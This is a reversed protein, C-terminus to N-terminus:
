YFLAHRVGSLLLLALIFCAVGLWGLHLRSAGIPVSTYFTSVLCFLVALVMLLLFGWALMVGGIM